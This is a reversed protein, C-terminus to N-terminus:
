NNIILKKSEIEGTGLSEQKLIKCIGKLIIDGTGYTTAIIEGANISKVDIDGTGNTVLLAKSCSFKNIFIDGTGETEVNLISCKSNKCRIDGTGYSIMKVDNADLGNISIEGTGSTLFYSVDPYSVTLKTKSYVNINKAEYSQITLIGERIDIKINDIVEKPGSLIISPEGPTYEIDTTSLTQIGHFKNKVEFKKTVNDKSTHIRVGCSEIFISSFVFIIFAIKNM